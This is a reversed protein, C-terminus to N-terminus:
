LAGSFVAGIATFASNVLPPLVSTALATSGLVLMCLMLVYNAFKGSPAKWVMLAALVGFVVYANWGGAFVTNQLISTVWSTAGLVLCCVMLIYQEVRSIRGDWLVFGLVVVCTAVATIDYLM